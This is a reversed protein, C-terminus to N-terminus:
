AAEAYDTDSTSGPSNDMAVQIPIVERWQRRSSYVAYRWADMEDDDEKVPEDVGRDAAKKDWLYGPVHEILETCNSSVAIKDVALLSTLTKIGGDKSNHAPMTMLGDEFLQARFHKAAPDVAVWEPEGFDIKVQKLWARFEGSQRNPALGVEPAFEAVTYLMRPIDALAMEPTPKVRWDPGIGIAYARTPHQTGFDLAVMLVADLKPVLESPIVHREEDWQDYVAGEAQVWLGELFRKRWLGVYERDLQAMYGPNERMLWENDTLIFHYRKYGLDSVRRIVLKHAWHHPGDPNTTALIRAGPPSMRGLLQTWFVESILTLEDVYALSVTLGRLVMESRVDSAGLIHVVRGFIKATSAGSTYSVYQALEGFLTPDQLVDFVNRAISDRTRGVVVIAGGPAPQTCARLFAMLSVITKGSRIAGDWLCVKPIEGFKNLKFADVYTQIQATNMGLNVMGLNVAEPATPPIGKGTM